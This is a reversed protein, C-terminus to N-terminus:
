IGAKGYKKVRVCYNVSVRYSRMRIYSNFANGDQSLLSYGAYRFTYVLLRFLYSLMYKIRLTGDIGSHDVVVRSIGWDLARKLFWTQEIRSDPVIHHVVASPNYIVKWGDKLLRLCLETEEGGYIGKDTRGLDTRFPYKELIRRRFSINVGYPIHSIGRVELERNVGPDFGSLFPELKRHLWKPRQFGDPWKLISKGGVCAIHDDRYSSLLGELWGPEAEADDDIFAVVDGGAEQVGRNRAHSLGTRPEYIYKFGMESQLRKIAEKNVETSGNDIVLVEYKDKQLTQNKVSHVVTELYQPRNLTCIVVSIKFNM